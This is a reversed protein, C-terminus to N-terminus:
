IYIFIYRYIYIYLKEYPMQFHVFFINRNFNNNYVLIRNYMINACKDCNDYIEYNDYIEEKFCYYLYPSFIIGKEVNM